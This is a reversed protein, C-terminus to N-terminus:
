RGLSRRLEATSVAPEKGHKWAQIAEDSAEADALDEAAELRELLRLDSLSVIAGLRTGSRGRVVVRECASSACAEEIEQSATVEPHQSLSEM